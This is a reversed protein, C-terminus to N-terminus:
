SLSLKIRMQLKGDATDNVYTGVKCTWHRMDGEEVHATIQAFFIAFISLCWTMNEMYVFVKSVKVVVKPRSILSLTFTSYM